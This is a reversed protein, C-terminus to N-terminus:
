TRHTQEIKDARFLRSAVFLAAPGIAIKTVMWLWITTWHIWRVVDPKALYRGHLRNLTHHEYISWTWHAVVFAVGFAMCCLLLKRTVRCGSRRALSAILVFTALKMAIPMFLGLERAYHQITFAFRSQGTWIHMAPVYWLGWAVVQLLLALWFTVLSANAERWMDRHMMTALGVASWPAVYRGMYWAVNGVPSLLPLYAAEVLADDWIGVVWWCFSHLGVCCWAIGIVAALLALVHFAPSKSPTYVTGCEPCPTEQSLGSLDYSCRVCTRALTDIRTRM